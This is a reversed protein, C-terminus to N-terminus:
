QQQLIKLYHVPYDTCLGFCSSSFTGSKEPMVQIVNPHTPSNINGWIYGRSTLTYIDKDHYFCNMLDKLQLLSDLHKCHVWLRHAFQALFEYSTPTEPFDHGLYYRGDLYWVDIEVDFGREIALRITDPKNETERNPGDINGRHAIIRM